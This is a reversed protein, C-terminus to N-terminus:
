GDHAKGEKVGVFDLLGGASYQLTYLAVLYDHLAGLYLSQAEVLASQADNVEVMTALGSAYRKEIVRLAEQAEAVSSRSAEVRKRAERLRLLGSVVDLVVEQEKEKTRERARALMAKAKRLRHERAFGDFINIKAVGGVMWNAAETEGPYHSGHWEWGAMLDIKPFYDSRARKVSYRGAEVRAKQALYDGRRELAQTVLADLTANYSEYRKYLVELDGKVEAPMRPDGGVVMNLARKSVEWATEERALRDEMSALYVKARLVDARLAMGRRFRAQATSVHGRASEVASRAAEVRSRAWATELYRRVVVLAVQERTSGLWKQAARYFARNMMVTSYIEGGHFLPWAVNVSSKFDTVTDPRNFGELNMMGLTVDRRSMKTMWVFPPNDSRVGEEQFWLRPFFLGWSALYGERTAVTSWEEGKLTHNEKLAREVLGKLEGARASLPLLMLFVLLFCRGKRGIRM